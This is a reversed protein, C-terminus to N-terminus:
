RGYFMKQYEDMETEEGGEDLSDLMKFLIFPSERALM